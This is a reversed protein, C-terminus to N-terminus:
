VQEIANEQTPDIRYFPYYNELKSCFDLVHAIRDKWHMPHEGCVLTTEPPMSFIIGGSIGSEKAKSLFTEPTDKGEPMLHIHCDYVELDQM